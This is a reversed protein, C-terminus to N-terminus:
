NGGREYYQEETIEEVSWSYQPIEGDSKMLCTTTDPWNPYIGSVGVGDAKMFVNLDVGGAYTIQYFREM